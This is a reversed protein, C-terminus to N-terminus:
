PRNIENQARLSAPAVKRKTRDNRGQLVQGGSLGNDVVMRDGSQHQALDVPHTEALTAIADLLGNMTRQDIVAFNSRM